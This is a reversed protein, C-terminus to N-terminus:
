VYLIYCIVDLSLKIKTFNSMTENEILHPISMPYVAPHHDASLNKGNQRRRIPCLDRTVNVAPCTIGTGAHGLLHVIQCQM